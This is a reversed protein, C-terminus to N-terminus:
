FRWTKHPTLLTRVAEPLDGGGAGGGAEGRNEYFWTLALLMAQRLTEPLSDVLLTGTGATTLAVASGGPAAALTFSLGGPAIAVAYYNTKEALGGPLTGDIATLRLAQGAAVPAAGAALTIVGSASAASGPTMYGTAYTVTVTDLQSDCTDPWDTGGGDGAVGPMIRAPDDDAAVTYDTDPDLTQVTGASDLYQIALVTQLPGPGIRLAPDDIRPNPLVAEMWGIVPLIYNAGPFRDATARYTALVFQRRTWDELGRRAAAIMGRILTDDATLDSDLRLQAKADTLSIPECPPPILLRPESM